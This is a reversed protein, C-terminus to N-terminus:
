SGQAALNVSVVWQDDDLRQGPPVARKFLMFGKEFGNLWNSAKDYVTILEWGSEGLAGLTSQIREFANFSGLAVVGYQWRPSDGLYPEVYTGSADHVHDLWQGNWARKRGAVVPDDRWESDTM